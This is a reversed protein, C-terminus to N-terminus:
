DMVRKRILNCAIRFKQYWSDGYTRILPKELFDSLYVGQSSGCSVASSCIEPVYEFNMFDLGNNHSIRLPFLHCSLPKEWDMRGAFFAAQISCMAIGDVYKVFVCEKNDVCTLELGDDSRQILGHDEVSQRAADELEHSLMKWAKHLPKQESKSVPAGSAGIVCCAGKCLGLNCSFSATAVSDSILVHDVSFM